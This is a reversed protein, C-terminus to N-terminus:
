SRARNAGLWIGVSGQLGTAARSAAGCWGVRSHCFHMASQCGAGQPPGVVCVIHHCLLLTALLHGARHACSGVHRISACTHALQVASLCCVQEIICDQGAPVLDTPLKGVNKVDATPACSKAKSAQITGTQKSVVQEHLAHSVVLLSDTSTGSVDEKSLDV